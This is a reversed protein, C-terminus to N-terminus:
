PRPGRLKVQFSGGVILDVTTCAQEPVEIMATPHHYGDIMLEEVVRAAQDLTLCEDSIGERLGDTFAQLEGGDRLDDHDESTEPTFLVIKNSPVTAFFGCSGESYPRDDPGMRFTWGDAGLRAIEELVFGEANSRDFCRSAGGDVPDVVQDSLAAAAPDVPAAPEVPTGAERLEGVAGRPAVHTTGNYEVAVPDDIPPYEAEERHVACDAIPDGSILPGEVTRHLEDEGDVTLADSCTVGGGDVPETGLREHAAFTAGGGVLLLAAAATVQGVRRRTKAKTRPTMVIEERLLGAAANMDDGFRAHRVPDAARLSAILQEDKM